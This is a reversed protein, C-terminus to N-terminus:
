LPAVVAPNLASAAVPAVPEVPAVPAVPAAVPAVPEVPAVPAVPAAVVPAAVLSADMPVQVNDVFGAPPTLGNAHLHALLSQVQGKLLVAATHLTLSNHAAGMFHSMLSQKEAQAITLLNGLEAAVAEITM